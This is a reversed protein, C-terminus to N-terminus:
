QMVRLPLRAGCKDSSIKKLM